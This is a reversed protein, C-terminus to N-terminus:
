KNQKNNIKDLYSQLIITAASADNKALGEQGRSAEQTSFLESEFHVKIGGEELKTKFVNIRNMIPNDNGNFDKSEGLVVTGVGERRIIGLIDEVLVSTNLIIDKPFAMVGEEDSLSLGVNKSGYDIGLFKM